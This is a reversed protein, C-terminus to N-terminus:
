DMDAHNSIKKRTSRVIKYWFGGELFSHHVQRMCYVQIFYLVKLIYSLALCDVKTQWILSDRIHNYFISMYMIYKLLSYVVSHVRGILDPSLSTCDFKMKGYPPNELSCNCIYKTCCVCLSTFSHVHVMCDSKEM